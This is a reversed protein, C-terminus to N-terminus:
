RSRTPTGVNNAPLHYWRFNPPRDVMKSKRETSLIEEPGRGYLLEHVSTSVQIRRERDDIYFDVITAEFSFCAKLINPEDEVVPLSLKENAKLPLIPPGELLPITNLTDIMDNDGAALDDVTKSSDPLRIKKNAGYRLLLEVSLLDGTRVAIYLPTARARDRSDVNAGHRLLVKAVPIHQKGVAAHLATTRTKLNLAEVNANFELLLEIMLHNGLIAAFYLPKEGSNQADETDAGKNLLIRAISRRDERVVLHLATQGDSDKTRLSVNERRLVEQVAAEDGSKVADLFAQASNEDKTGESSHGGSIVLAMSSLEPNCSTWYSTALFSPFHRMERLACELQFSFEEILSFEARADVGPTAHM